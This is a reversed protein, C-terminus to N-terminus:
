RRTSVASPFTPIAGMNRNLFYLTSCQIPNAPMSHKPAPLTITVTKQGSNSAPQCRMLPSHQQPNVWVTHSHTFHSACVIVVFLVLAEVLCNDLASNNHIGNTGNPSWCRRMCLPCCPESWWFKMIRHSLSPFLTQAPVDWGM